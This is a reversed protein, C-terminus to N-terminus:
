QRLEDMFFRAPSLAGENICYLTEKMGAGGRNPAVPGSFAAM